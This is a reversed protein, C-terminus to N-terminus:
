FDAPYSRPSPATRAVPVPKKAAAAARRRSQGHKLGAPRPTLVPLAEARRPPSPFSEGPDEFSTSKRKKKKKRTIKTSTVSAKHEGHM